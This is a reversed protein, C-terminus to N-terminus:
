LQLAAKIFVKEDACYAPDNTVRFLKEAKDVQSM